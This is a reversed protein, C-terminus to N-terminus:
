AYRGLAIGAVAAATGLMFFWIAVRVAVHKSHLVRSVVYNQGAYEFEVEQETTTSLARQYEAASPWSRVDEWFILGRQYSSPLRPYIACAGAVGAGGLLGVSIWQIVHGWFTPPALGLVAAGVTLSAAVFGAAKADAVAVFHNLYNNVALGFGAPPGELPSAMTAPTPGPPVPEASLGQLVSQTTPELDSSM